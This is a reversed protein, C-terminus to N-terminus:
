LGLFRSALADQWGLLRDLCHSDHGGGLGGLVGVELPTPLPPRPLPAEIPAVPLVEAPPSGVLLGVVPPIRLGTPPVFPGQVGLCTFRLLHLAGLLSDM